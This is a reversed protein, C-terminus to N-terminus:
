VALPFTPCLLSLSLLLLSTLHVFFSSDKGGFYINCTQRKNIGCESRERKRTSWLCEIDTLIGHGSTAKIFAMPVGQVTVPVIRQSESLWVFRMIKLQHTLVAFYSYISTITNCCFFWLLIDPDKSFCTCAYWLSHIAFGEYGNVRHLQHVSFISTSNHSVLWCSWFSGKGESSLVKRPM